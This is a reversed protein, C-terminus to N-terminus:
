PAVEAQCSEIESRLVPVFHPKFVRDFFHQLMVRARAEGKKSMGYSARQDSLLKTFMYDPDRDLGVLFTKFPEGPCAWRFQWNGWDSAIQLMGTRENVTIVAWGHEPIITYQSVQEVKVKATKEVM